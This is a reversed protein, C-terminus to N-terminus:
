AEEVEFEEDHYGVFVDARVYTNLYGQFAFEIEQLELESEAEVL